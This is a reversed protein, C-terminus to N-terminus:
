ELLVGAYNTFPAAQPWRSCRGHRNNKHYGTGMVHVGNGLHRCRESVMGIRAGTGTILINGGSSQVIRPFISEMAETPSVIAASLLMGKANIPGLVRNRFAARRRYHENARQNFDSRDNRRDGNRYTRGNLRYTM